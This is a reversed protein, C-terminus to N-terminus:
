KNRNVHTTVELLLSRNYWVTDAGELISLIIINYKNFTSDKSSQVLFM